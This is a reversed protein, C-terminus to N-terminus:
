QQKEAEYLMEAHRLLSDCCRHVYDADVSSDVWLNVIRRGFSDADPCEDAPNFFQNASWYLNSVHFGDRRVAESCAVQQEPNDLLLSFRWCVGSQQFATLLRWHPSPLREAYINALQLRHALSVPLGEWVANLDITPNAPRLYLPEYAPRVARFATAIQEYAIERLRFLGVLAHHLNRYSLALQLRTNDDVVAFPVPKELVQQLQGASESTNAVLVGNGAEIIKTRNFSYVAIDGVSGTYREDPYHAGLAQTPDEILLINHAKCWAAIPDIDVTHGLLHIVVVAITNETFRAQVTELSMLGTNAGVDAFRPILGALLATNAATACMMAPVIVEPQMVRSVVSDSGAWEV